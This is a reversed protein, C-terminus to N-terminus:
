YCCLTFNPTFPDVRCNQDYRITDYEPRRKLQFARRKLEMWALDGAGTAFYRALRARKGRLWGTKPKSLVRM